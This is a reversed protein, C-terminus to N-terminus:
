RGFTFPNLAGREAEPTPHGYDLPRGGVIEPGTDPDPYPDYIEAEARQYEAPGPNFWRPASYNACGATSFMVGFIVLLLGIRRM